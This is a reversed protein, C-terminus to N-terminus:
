RDKPGDNPPKTTPKNPRKQRQAKSKPGTQAVKPETDAVRDDAGATAVPKAKQKKAKPMQNTPKSGIGLRAAIGGSAKAVPQGQASPPLPPPFWVRIVAAQGCTWLNTTIWYILLGAPFDSTGFPPSVIFYAFVVPLFLFIYKQKPDVSTPMLLTAGMQSLVYIIMLPWLTTGPLANLSETINPIWGWFMSLDAGAEIEDSIDVLVVYLAFFIPLQVLLPLCSGFPNVKNERYFLMMEENLKQRDDKYKAQMKKIEPQLSQMARFSQQQKVTLPIMAIRVLMTLLVISWAWSVGLQVHITSLLWTLPLVIPDLLSYLTDM